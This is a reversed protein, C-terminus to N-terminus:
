HRAVGALVRAVLEPTVWLGAEKVSAIATALDDLEGRRHARALLGLTGITPLGHKKAEARAARDDIAVWCGDMSRAIAIAQTEGRGLREEALTTADPYRELWTARMIAAAGARQGGDATVEEWVSEPVVVREFQLKLLDLYGARGLIILPTADVVLIM